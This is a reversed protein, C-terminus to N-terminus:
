KKAKKVFSYNRLIKNGPIQIGESFCRVSINHYILSIFVAEKDYRPDSIIIKDGKKLSNLQTQWKKHRIKMIEIVLCFVIFALILVLILVGLVKLIDLSM